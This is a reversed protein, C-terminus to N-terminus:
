QCLGNKKQYDQKLMAFASFDEDTGVFIGTKVEKINKGFHNLHKRIPNLVQDTTYGNDQMKAEDFIFEMKM